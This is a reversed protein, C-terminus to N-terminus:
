LDPKEQDVGRAVSYMAEIRKSYKGEISRRKLKMTPTLEDSDPLWEDQLLAFRKIQEVRALRENARDVHVQIAAALDDGSAYDAAFTPDAVILAVNYPRANGIVCAQGILPGSERLREEINAPSMNKGSANIILEKKRDIIWIRGDDDIRGLDGTRLWGEGDFTAATEEPRNRYRSMLSPGRVLLEGDEALRVENIPLPKGVSGVDDIDAISVVGATESMGYLERLPVGISHFYEVVSPPCPAAGTLAVKVRGFGISHRIAAPDTGAAVFSATAARLKEWLRPPSFFVDPQVKGLLPMLKSTEPCCVVSCGCVIPLYHTAVREAIHAMPLHSVMRMESHAEIHEVLQTVISLISRHTLEVGKPPGTTGSTYIITATDTASAVSPFDAADTTLLDTWSDTEVVIIDRLAVGPDLNKASQLKELFDPESIVIRCGANRMIEALQEPASTSYMSFPTAGALLTATDAIHFEPRNRLLLGVTDGPEVGLLRLGAAANRVAAGYERWSLVVELEHDLIAPADGRLAVQDLFVDGITSSQMETTIM